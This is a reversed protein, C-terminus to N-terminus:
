DNDKAVPDNESVDRLPSSLLGVNADLSEDLCSGDKVDATTEDGKQSDPLYLMEVDSLGPTLQVRGETLETDGGGSVAPLESCSPFLIESNSSEAAVIVTAESVHTDEEVVVETANLLNKVKQSNDQDSITPLRAKEDDKVPDMEISCESPTVSLGSEEMKQESTQTEQRLSSFELATNPLTKGNSRAAVTCQDNKELRMIESSTSTTKETEESFVFAVAAATDVGIHSDDSADVIVHNMASTSVLSGPVGDRSSDNLLDLKEPVLDGSHSVELQGEGQVLDPSFIAPDVQGSSINKDTRGEDATPSVDQGNSKDDNLLDVSAEYGIIVGVSNNDSKTFEGEPQSTPGPAASTSTVSLNIVGTGVVGIADVAKDAFDLDKCTDTSSLECSKGSVEGINDVSTGSEAGLSHNVTLALGPADGNVINVGNPSCASVPTGVDQDDGHIPSGGGLGVVKNVASVDKQVELPCTVPSSVMVNKSLEIIDLESSAVVVSQDSGTININSIEAQVIIENMKDNANFSNDQGGVVSKPSKLGLASEDGVAEASGNIIKPAEDFAFCADGTEPHSPDQQVSDILCAREATDLDAVNTCSDNTPERESGESIITDGCSSDTAHTVSSTSCHVEMNVEVPAMDISAKNSDSLLETVASTRNTEVDISVTKTCSNEEKCEVRVDQCEPGDLGLDTSIKAPDHVLKLGSDMLVTQECSKDEELSISPANNNLVPFAEISPLKELCTQDLDTSMVNPGHILPEAVVPDAKECSIYGEQADFPAADEVKQSFKMLSSEELSNQGLHTLDAKETGLEQAACSVTVDVEQCGETTVSIEVDNTCTLDSIDNIPVTKETGVEQVVGSLTANVEPCVEVSNHVTKETDVEQSVGPLTANVEQFVEVTISDKVINCNPDSIDNMPVAQETDLEQGVGPVTDNFEQCGETIVSNELSLHCPVKAEEGPDCILNSAANVAAVESSPGKKLTLSADNAEQSGEILPKELSIQQEAIGEAHEPMFIPRAEEQHVSTVNNEEAVRRVVGNIEECSNDLLKEPGSQEPGYSNEPVCSTSILEANQSVSKDQSSDEQILDIHVVNSSELREATPEDETSQRLDLLNEATECHVDAESAANVILPERTTTEPAKLVESGDAVGTGGMPSKETPESEEPDTKLNNTLSITPFSASPEPSSSEETAAHVEVSQGMVPPVDPLKKEKNYALLESNISEEAAIHVDVSQGVVPLVDLLEKVRNSALSEPPISEETAIYVDVNQGVVPPVDPLEKEKNSALLETSMSEDMVVHNEVNQGVELPMDTLEKKKNFESFCTESLPGMNTVGAMRLEEASSMDKCESLLSAVPHAEGIVENRHLSVDESVLINAGVKTCEVSVAAVSVPNKETSDSSSEGTRTVIPKQDNLTSIEGDGCVIQLQGPCVDANQIKPSGGYNYTQISTGGGPQKVSDAQEQETVVKATIVDASKLKPAELSTSSASQGLGSVANKRRPGSKITVPVTGKNKEAAPKRRSAPHSVSPTVNKVSQPSLVPEKNLYATDQLPVVEIGKGDQAEMKSTLETQTSTIEMKSVEEGPALKHAHHPQVPASDESKEVLKQQTASESLGMRLNRREMLDQALASMSSLSQPVKSNDHKKSERSVTCDQVASKTKSATCHKELERKEPSSVPREQGEQTVSPLPNSITSPASKNGLATSKSEVLSAQKETVKNESSPAVRSHTEQALSSVRTQVTSPSSRTEMVNSGILPVAAPVERERKVHSPGGGKQTEQPVSPGSGLPIFDVVKQLGSIPNVEFAIGASTLTGVPRFLMRGDQTFAIPTHPSLALEKPLGSVINVPIAVPADPVQKRARRRSPKDSSANPTRRSQGKAQSTASPPAAPLSFSVGSLVAPQPNGFSPGKQLTSTDPIPTVSVSVDNATPGVAVQSGITPPVQLLAGSPPIQFEVKARKPRGRGRKAPVPTENQAPSPGVVPAPPEKIPPVPERPPPLPEKSPLQLEKHHSLAPEDCPIAPEKSPPALDKSSLPSAASDRLKSGGSDKLVSSGKAVDKPESVEPSDAQCLKEFEEETWQDEYSRVERARKGRGYQQTDLGGIYENKRKLGVNAAEYIKMANYFANLDEDTVLRSPMLSLSESVHKSQEQVISQWVAMEEERRQKDVTEFIDIESESRAIKDNLADDDLVQAAEEKKCERLLSELYERRDEASTNNDFFGATISQNAVGLKHEAAARVQEEVTRVTEFRLVLVDRKQGIRHARAQAQLDVQPNWDTDFIIVTDAAQLNVGVGGARISLLFIFAPSDSRNFEEILAGRDNGSTHGDLRLYKYRKWSLYEEMVDLLRTMTSFFLVRHDTAKLKPLLRDLMELKGCLRVIPPLYHKPILTDVEEAHLQSLYPHNCINRLEMVTNHVSRAKSSGISGLNEEVRTMLLKQYASAECRILREIKEPLENEVKHKLRRLVFPRLVQHLRNIILLNEEESLLAEDASTDGGAEFPKNFWQSFDESSNFINPLLFNLLAWLEELNNQLPTGTLLLRHSSQYHRLDANLKCSANKIRHGEDIIIYHWHIKSLKPRDHKNMLYEYTTLLVNFKQHVIREKFLRRREEPPGAYTIKNVGRAWFSIESDWGPLVSSPVVVLFPGRDNKTEMLYCILAIVQVTKGLGMEDALIGNLHNNYLSVLWRLGNMQYERLKGGQLSTPQENISEKISHALLYYKENSELYHKAQDSDDEDDIDIDDTEIVTNVAKGEEMEMEFRRALSKAEKLKAGLKQLYKETEKLLQKVRDSKADQVMRLYGEVDNNKLLNIKERQIRDIKERHAREKRKHFEKVYKNFGKWRERKWKFHDDLREKHAEVEGFFEKQRERIRKLREEKMKQEFRELQKMRRGHRHKKISKLREMDSTVPKFFNHLFDSRLRQQLQLLQLKKLEIVNKTRASIDESSNVNEKIKDYCAAIREEAKKQKLEWNKEEQVKKKHRDMIWKESTTYKSSSLPGNSSFKEEEPDASKAPPGFGIAKFGDFPFQKQVDSVRQVSVGNGSAFYSNCVISESNAPQGDATGVNTTFMSLDRGHSASTQEKVSVANIQVIPTEPKYFKSARDSEKFFQSQNFPFVKRPTAETAKSADSSPVESGPFSTIEGHDVQKNSGPLSSSTLSAKGVQQPGHDLDDKDLHSESSTRGGNMSSDSELAEQMQLEGEPKRKVPPVWKREEVALARDSALGKKNKIKTSIEAGKSSADTEVPSGASSSGPANKALLVEKRTNRTENQRGFVVAIEQNNSLMDRRHDDSGKDEKSTSDGLAIELHLKRPVLGNRFALFVLCQARLQKLHHDKFPMVAVPRSIGTEASSRSDCGIDKQIIESRAKSFSNHDRQDGLESKGFVKDKNQAGLSPSGQGMKYANAASQSLGGEDGPSSSTLHIGSVKEPYVDGFREKQMRSVADQNEFSSGVHNAAPFGTKATSYSSFAGSLGNNGKGAGSAINATLNGGHLINNLPGSARRPFEFNQKDPFRSDHINTKLESGYTAAENSSAPSPDMTQQISSRDEVTYGSPANSVFKFGQANDTPLGLKTQNWLGKSSLGSSVPFNDQKGRFISGPGALQASTMQSNEVGKMFVSSDADGRNSPKGKKLNFATNSNNDQPVDLAITSDSKKRKGAIKKGDKHKTSDHREQSNASRTDEMGLSAPSEHEFSKTSDGRTPVLPPRNSFGVDQKVMENETSSPLKSDQEKSRSSSATQWGSSPGCKLPTDGGGVSFPNEQVDKDKSQLQGTDQMPPAGPLPLHSSMLADIDIGNQTIVTEMARSIVQYPLSNEKGSLKMHQCIVHLKRALKSPEDKSDQILKQLFKAAEMEVHPSSAM